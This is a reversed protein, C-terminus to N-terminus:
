NLLRKYKLLDPYYSAILELATPIPLRGDSLKQQCDFQKQSLFLANVDPNHKAQKYELLAVGFSSKKCVYKIELNNSRVIYDRCNPGEELFIMVTKDTKAYNIEFTRMLQGHVLTPELEQIQFEGLYSNSNGNLSILNGNIEVAKTSFSIVLLLLVLLFSLRKM